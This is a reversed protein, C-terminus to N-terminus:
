QPEISVFHVLNSPEASIWISTGWAIAEVFRRFIKRTPFATLYEIRIGLRAPGRVLERLQELRAPTIPGTSTVAEVVLLRNEYSDHLIVDPLSTTVDIPLNLRRMLVRDQYGTRPATDGLYVVSSRRLIAPGLVEVVEKELENHTGPSLAFAQDTALLVSLEGERERQRGGAGKKGTLRLKEILRDREPGPGEEFLRDLEGSLRYYTNPDNTSLQHRIVWGADILPRLSTKRYSERTNEAVKRRFDKRVFSLIDHIRAGDALREHGALLGKRPQRNVLALITLATQDTIHSEPFGLERM